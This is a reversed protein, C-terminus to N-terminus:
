LVVRNDYFHVHKRKKKSMRASTCLPMDYFMKKLVLLLGSIVGSKEGLINHEYQYPDRMKKGLLLIMKCKMGYCLVLTLYFFVRQAWCLGRKGHKEESWPKLRSASSGQQAWLPKSRVKSLISIRVTQQHLLLTEFKQFLTM